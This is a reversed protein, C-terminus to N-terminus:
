VRYRLGGCNKSGRAGDAAERLWHAAEDAAWDEGHDDLALSLAYQMEFSAAYKGGARMYEVAAELDPDVDQEDMFCQALVACAEQHIETEVDPNEVARM